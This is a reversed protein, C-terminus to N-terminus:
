SLQEAPAMVILLLSAHHMISSQKVTRIVSKPHRAIQRLGQVLPRRFSFYV